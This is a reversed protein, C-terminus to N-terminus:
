GTRAFAVAANMAGILRARAKREWVRPGVEVWAEETGAPTRGPELTKIRCITDDPPCFRGTTPLHFGAMKLLRHIAAM